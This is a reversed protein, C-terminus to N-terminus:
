KKECKFGPVMYYGNYVDCAFCKRAGDKKENVLCGPAFGQEYHMRDASVAYGVKCRSCRIAGRKSDFRSGWLCHEITNKGAPVCNTLGPTQVYLGNGCSKCLVPGTSSKTATISDKINNKATCPTQIGKAAINLARTSDWSSCSVKGDKLSYGYIECNNPIPPPPGCGRRRGLPYSNYCLICTDGEVLLCGEYQTNATRYLGALILLLHLKAIM